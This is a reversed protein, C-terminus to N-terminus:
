WNWHYWTRDCCATYESTTQGDHLIHKSQLHVQSVTFSSAGSAKLDRVYCPPTTLHTVSFPATPFRCLPLRYKRHLAISYNYVISCTHPIRFHSSIFLIRTAGLSFTLILLRAVFLNGSILSLRVYRRHGTFALHGALIAQVFAILHSSSSDSPGHRKSARGGCDRAPTPPL